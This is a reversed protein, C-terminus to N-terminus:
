HEDINVSSDAQFYAWYEHFKKTFPWKMLITNQM